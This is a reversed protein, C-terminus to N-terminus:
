QYLARGFEGIALMLLLMLPLVLTAEVAAIGRQRRGNLSLARM